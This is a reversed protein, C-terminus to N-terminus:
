IKSLLQPFGKHIMNVLGFYYVGMSIDYEHKESWQVLYWFFLHRKVVTSWARRYRENNDEHVFCDKHYGTSIEINEIGGEWKKDGPIVYDRVQYMGFEEVIYEISKSENTYIYYYHPLNVKPTSWFRKNGMLEDTTKGVGSTM